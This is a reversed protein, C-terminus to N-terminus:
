FYGGDQRDTDGDEDSEINASVLDGSDELSQIFANADAVFNQIMVKKTDATDVNAFGLEEASELIDAKTMANLEAESPITIEEYEEEVEEKKADIKAQAAALMEEESDYTPINQLNPANGGSVIPKTFNPQTQEDEEAIRLEPEEESLALELQEEEAKEEAILQEEFLDLEDKVEEVEVEEEVVEEDVEVEKISKVAQDWEEPTVDDLSKIEPEEWSEMPDPQPMIPEEVQTPLPNLSRAVDFARTKEVPKAPEETTNAQIEELQAMVKALEKKAKRSEEIEEALRKEYERFRETTDTNNKLMQEQQLEQLRRQKIGVFTQYDIQAKNFEESLAAMATLDQTSVLGAKLYQDIMAIVVGVLKGDISAKYTQLQETIREIEPKEVQETAFTPNVPENM